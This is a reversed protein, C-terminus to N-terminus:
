LAATFPFGPGFGQTCGISPDAGLGSVRNVSPRPMVLKADCMPTERDQPRRRARVDHQEPDRALLRSYRNPARRKPERVGGWLQVAKCTCIRCLLTRPGGSVCLRTFCGADRGIAGAHPGQRDVL